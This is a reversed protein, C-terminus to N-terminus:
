LGQIREWVHRRGGILFVKFIGSSFALFGRLLSVKRCGSEQGVAPFIGQGRHLTYWFFGERGIDM